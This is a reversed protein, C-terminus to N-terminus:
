LFSRSRIALVPAAGRSGTKAAPSVCSNVPASVPARPFVRTVVNGAQRRGSVATVDMCDMVFVAKGCM